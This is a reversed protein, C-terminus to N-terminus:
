KELLIRTAAQQLLAALVLAEQPSMEAVIGDDESYTCIKIVDCYSAFNIRENIQM